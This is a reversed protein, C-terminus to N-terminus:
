GFPTKGRPSGSVLVRIGHAARDADTRPTLQRLHHLELEGLDDQGSWIYAVALLARSAVGDPELELAEKALRVAEDNEGRNLAMLGKLVAIQGPLAGAMEVIGLAKQAEDQNNMLVDRVAKEFSATAVM